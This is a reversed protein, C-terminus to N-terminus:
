LLNAQHNRRWALEAKSVPDSTQLKKKMKKKM